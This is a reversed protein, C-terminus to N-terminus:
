LIRTSVPRHGGAENGLFPPHLWHHRIMQRGYWTQLLWQILVGSECIAVRYPRHIHRRAVRSLIPPLWMPVFAALAGSAGMLLWVAPLAMMPLWMFWPFVALKITLGFHTRLALRRERASMRDFSCNTVHSLPAFGSRRHPPTTSM